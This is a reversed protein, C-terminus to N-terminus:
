TKSRSLTYFSLPSKKRLFARYLVAATRVAMMVNLSWWVAQVDRALLLMSAVAMAAAVTTLQAMWVYDGLGYLVGDSVWLAGYMLLMVVAPPVIEGFAAVVATDAALMSAIRIRFLWLGMAALSAVAGSFRMTRLATSWGRRVAGQTVDASVLVQAALQFGYLLFLLLLFVKTM